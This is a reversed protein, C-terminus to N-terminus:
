MRLDKKGWTKSESFHSTFNHSKPNARTTSSFSQFSLSCLSLAAGAIARWAELPFRRGGGGILRCIVECTTVRHHARKRPFPTRIAHFHRNNLSMVM